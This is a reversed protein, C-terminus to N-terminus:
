ALHRELTAISVSMDTSGTKWVLEIDVEGQDPAIINRMGSM